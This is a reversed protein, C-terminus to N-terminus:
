LAWFVQHDGALPESVGHLFVTNGVCDMCSRLIKLGHAVTVGFHLYYKPSSFGMM